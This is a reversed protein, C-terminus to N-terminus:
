GNKGMKLEHRLRSLMGRVRRLGRKQLRYVHPISINLEKAVKPLEKDELFIAELIKGEKEPLRKLASKLPELWSIKELSADEDLTNVESLQNLLSINEEELSAYSSDLSVLNQEVRQLYNIIQGRIRFSAYTAFGIGKNPDYREVAEILGVAAEQILDMVQSSRPNMKMVLKFALPQYSEILHARSSLDDEEKFKQWLEREEEESLLSVKSLEQLYEQLM